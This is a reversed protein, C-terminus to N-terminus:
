DFSKFREMQPLAPTSTSLVYWDPIVITAHSFESLSMM